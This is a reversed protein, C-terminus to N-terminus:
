LASPRDQSWQWAAALEPLEQRSTTVEQLWQSQEPDLHPLGSLLQRTEDELRRIAALVREAHGHAM